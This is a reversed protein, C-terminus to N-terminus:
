TKDMGIAIGARWARVMFFVSVGAVFLVIAGCILYMTPSNLIKLM